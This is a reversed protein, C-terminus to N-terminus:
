DGGKDRRFLKKVWRKVKGPGWVIFDLIKDFPKWM